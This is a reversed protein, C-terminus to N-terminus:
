THTKATSPLPLHLSVSVGGAANETISLSGQKGYLAAIRERLNALGVGGGPKSSAVTQFGVGTDSIVVHLHDKEVHAKLLIEGGEIKPELGHSIANEVVPQLLMPPISLSAAQDSIEIRYRLREGMRLKMLELYASITDIEGQLLTDSDRSASLTARLYDILRELLLRARAPDPQILGVANALTNYLFHPEMQAQLMRLQAELARRESELARRQETAIKEKDRLERERVLYAFVLVCSVLVSVIAFNLIVGTKFYDLRLAAPNILLVALCYGAFVGGSPVILYYAVWKWGRINEIWPRLLFSSLAFLIHISYSISMAIVLNNWLQVFFRERSLNYAYLAFFFLAFGLGLIFTYVLDRVIGPQWRRFFPILALPHDDAGQKGPSTSVPKAPTTPDAPMPKMM